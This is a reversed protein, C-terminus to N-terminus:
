LFTAERALDVVTRAVTTLPLGHLSSVHKWPLAARHVHVGAAGRTGPSHPQRTVQVSAGPSVPLGHLVAASRGTVVVGPLSRVVAAAALRHQLRGDNAAGDVM